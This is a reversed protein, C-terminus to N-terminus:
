RAAQAKCVPLKRDLLNPRAGRKRCPKAAPRVTATAPPAITRTRTAGARATPEDNAITGIGNGGFVAGNIGGLSAYFFEDPEPLTDGVLAVEFVQRTRGADIFRNALSREVYDSGPQASGPLTAITYTVPHPAPHSLEVVFSATHQGENGEIFSADLVRLSPLDDNNIRARVQNRSLLVGVPNSLEVIFTENGEVQTDGNIRVTFTAAGTGAPIKFNPLSLSQYDVGPTATGPATAIDVFVDTTPYHGLDVFFTVDSSGADGEAVQIDNISLLPATEPDVRFEIAAGSVKSYAHLMAYWTGSRPNAFQCTENVGVTQQICDAVALTPEAGHRVYLDGDNSASGTGPGFGPIGSRVTLTTAGAPVEFKVIAYEGANLTNPEGPFSHGLTGSWYGKNVTMPDDNLILGLATADAVAIGSVNSVAVRVTENVEPTDDGKIPLYFAYTTQGAPIVQGVLSVIEFDGNGSDLFINDVAIDFSVPTPMPRSLRVTFLMAQVGVDGERMVADDITLRGGKAAGVAAAANVIGPECGPCPFPTRRATAKLMAEIAAPSNAQTAQMLAVVGSVHPAAMSTGATLAYTGPLTHVTLGNNYASVIWGGSDGGPALVDVAAGTNSYFAVDGRRSSAGVTIVNNCNAPLTGAADGGDNGSAAVVPVGAAVAQDIAAQLTPGCAGPSSLSLNIVDAVHKYDPVGPVIGGASWVIAEAVDSVHGGCRGLVRVPKVVADYAVGAIGQSNNGTAAAIGAVLTGHWSSDTAPLGAGCADAANWDGADIANEDRGGGDNATFPDSIFDYGGGVKLDPHPTYGTDLVAIVTGQGTGMDWTVPANIGGFRDTLNWQYGQVYHLDNPEFAPKVARDLEIFAVNSDLRLRNMFAHAAAAPVRRNLLVVQSGFSLHHAQRAKADVASAAADLVRQRAAADKRAPSGPKFMVIFRNFGERQAADRETADRRAADAQAAVRLAPDGQAFSPGPLVLLACLALRLLLVRLSPEGIPRALASM